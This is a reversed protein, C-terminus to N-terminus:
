SAARRGPLRLVRGPAAGAVADGDAQGRRRADAELQAPAPLRQLSRGTRRGLGHAVVGALGAAATADPAAVPAGPSAAGPSPGVPGPAAGRGAPPRYRTLTALRIWAFAVFEVVVVGPLDPRLAPLVPALGLAGAVVVDGVAHLRPGCM